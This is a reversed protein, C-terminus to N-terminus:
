WVQKTIGPLTAGRVGAETAAERAETHSISKVTPAIFVDFQKMKRAVDEPPEQGAKEPEEYEVYEYEIGREDLVEFLAEFLERDNSDNLVIVEEDEQIQLCQDIITEAGAKLSM